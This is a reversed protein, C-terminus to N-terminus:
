PPRPAGLTGHQHWTVADALRDDGWFVEGRAVFSPAGFIGLRRAQDTTAQYARGIEDSRALAIVRAPDEGIERLSESLNPEMGCEQKEVFWRRYTARAYDACWGERAGVTAVRNALDFERLPYPADGEFAFGYMEARRHLDRWMYALKLPKSAPRNDMDIMIARVSFPRWALQIGTLDEVRDIRMVTLFTYMSGISFYFEIPEGNHNSV